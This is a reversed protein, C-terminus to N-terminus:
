GEEIPIINISKSFTAQTLNISGPLYAMIYNQENNIFTANIIAFAQQNINYRISRQNSGVLGMNLTTTRTQAGIYTIQFTNAVNPNIRFIFLANGINDTYNLTVNFTGAGYTGGNCSIPLGNFTCIKVFPMIGNTYNITLNIMSTNANGFFDYRVNNGPTYTRQSMGNTFFLTPENQWNISFAYTTLGYFVIFKPLVKSTYKNINQNLSMGELKSDNMIDFVSIIALNGQRQITIKKDTNAYLITKLDEIIDDTIYNLTTYSSEQARQMNLNIAYILALMPLVYFILYLHNIFAKAM